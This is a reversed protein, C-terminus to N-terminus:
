LVVEVIKEKKLFSVLVTMFSGAIQIIFPYTPILHRDMDDLGALWISFFQGLIFLICFWQAWAVKKYKVYLGIIIVTQLLFLIFLNGYAGVVIDFVRKLMYKFYVGTFQSNKVFRNIREPPYNVTDPFNLCFLTDETPPLYQPFRKIYNQYRDTIDNNISFPVDYYTHKKASDIIAIFEEDGGYKYAGSTTIHALTNNLAINSLVFQGNYRKNMECYSLVGVVSVFIGIFGWYLIKREDRLLIFRFLLFVIVVLILILYTPKLMVLFFPFIGLYLANLKKPKELYKVLIFLMLTSGAFCLSEPNLYVNQILITNWLGYFLTAIVVAYKNRLISMSAFYFPIISLFSIAQQFLILNQVLNDKSVYEFFRIVYPYLPTRYPDIIGGFIDVYVFYMVSDANYLVMGPHLFGFYFFRYLLCVLLIGSLLIYDAKQIIKNNLWNM